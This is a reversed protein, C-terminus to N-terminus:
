SAPSLTWARVRHSPFWQEKATRLSENGMDQERDVWEFEAPLLKNFEHCLIPYSGERDLLAKEYHVVFTDATLPEGLTVGVVRGESRLVAGFLGLPEVAGLCAHLAEVEHVLVPDKGCDNAHCWEGLFARVEDQDGPTLIKVSWDGHKLFRKIHNRKRSYHSGALTSLDGHRYVYDDNDSDAEALWRGATLRDRVVDPVFGIRPPQGRSRLTEVCWDFAEEIPGEGLPVLFREHGDEVYRFVLWRGDLVAWQVDNLGRWCWQTAFSYECLPLAARRFFPVLADRDDLHIPRFEAELRRKLM